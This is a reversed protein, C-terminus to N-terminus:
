MGVPGGPASGAVNNVLIDLRGFHRVCTEIMEKVAKSDTVDCLHTEIEGKSREMTELLSKKNLDVAFIKAGEEAFRAAIARGNGWGPGVSGAGTVIAVKGNLRSGMSGRLTTSSFRKASSRRPRSRPWTISWGATM